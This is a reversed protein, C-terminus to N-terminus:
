RISRCVGLPWGHWQSYLRVLLGPLQRERSGPGKANARGRRQPRFAALREEAKTKLGCYSL